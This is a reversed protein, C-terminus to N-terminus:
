RQRITDTAGLSTVTWALVTHAGLQPPRLTNREINMSVLLFHPISPRFLAPLALTAAIILHRASKTSPLPNAPEGCIWACTSLEIRALLTQRPYALTASGLRGLRRDLIVLLISVTRRIHFSHERQLTTCYMRYPTPRPTNQLRLM